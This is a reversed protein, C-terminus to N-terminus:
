KLLFHPTQTYKNSHDMNVIYEKFDQFENLPVIIYYGNDAQTNIFNLLDKKFPWNRTYSYFGPPVYGGEYYYYFDFESLFIVKPSNATAKKVEDLNLHYAEGPKFVIGRSLYSLQQSIKDIAGASYFYSMTVIFVVSVVPMLFKRVVVTREKNLEFHVLDFSLFFMLLLSGSINIMNVSYSRTFYYLSNGMALLIVFVGTQFYREPLSPRNKWLIFFATACICPFYWYFSDRTIPVTGVGYKLLVAIFNSSVPQFFITYLLCALLTIAINISYLSFYEKVIAGARQKKDLMDIALLVSVLLCYSLGYILGFTHHFIILVGTLLGVSWHKIGKWYACILIPLWLDLRLPTDAYYLVIGGDMGYVRIIVLAIILYISFLKNMLYKRTFFFLALFFFFYSFQELIDFSYIPLGLKMWAAAVISLFYDYPCYSAQLPFGHVMRLAPAFMYISNSFMMANTPIICAAFLVVIVAVSLIWARDSLASFIVSIFFTCFLYLFMLYGLAAASMPPFFSVTKFFCLTLVILFLIFFNKVSSPKIKSIGLYFFLSLLIDLFMFVYLVYLQIGSTQGPGVFCSFWPTWESLPITANTSWIFSSYHFFLAYLGYTVASSVLFFVALNM